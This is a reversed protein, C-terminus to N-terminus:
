SVVGGVGHLSVSGRFSFESAAGEICSAKETQSHSPSPFPHPCKVEAGSQDSGEAGEDTGGV